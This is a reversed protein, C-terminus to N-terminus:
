GLLACCFACWLKRSSILNDLTSDIELLRPLIKLGTNGADQRGFDRKQGGTGESERRCDGPETKEREGGEFLISIGWSLNKGGGGGVKRLPHSSGRPMSIAEACDGMRTKIVRPDGSTTFIGTFRRNGAHWDTAFVSRHVTRSHGHIPWCCSRYLANETARYM